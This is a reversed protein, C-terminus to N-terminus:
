MTEAQDILRQMAETGHSLIFGDLDIKDGVDPWRIAKVDPAVGRLREGDRRTAAQGAPDSDYALYVTKGRLLNAYAAHWDGAGPKAVAPMSLDAERWAQWAVMAKIEGETLMVSDTHDLCDALYLGYGGRQRRSGRLELYGGHGPRRGRQNIVQGCHFWPILHTDRLVAAPRGRDTILGAGISQQREFGGVLCTVDGSGHGLGLESIAWPKLGRQQWFAVNVDARAVEAVQRYLDRYGAVLAPDADNGPQSPTFAVPEMGLQHLLGEVRGKRGCQRCWYTGHPWIVFRDDGAQCFPCASHLEQGLRRINPLVPQLCAELTTLHNM